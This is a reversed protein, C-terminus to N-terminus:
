YDGKENPILRGMTCGFEVDTLLYTKDPIPTCLEMEGVTVIDPMDPSILIGFCKGLGATEDLQGWNECDGCYCFGM